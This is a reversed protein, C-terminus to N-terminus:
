DLVISTNHYVSDVTRTYVFEPEATSVRLQWSVSVQVTRAHWLWSVGRWFWEEPCMPPHATLLFTIPKYRGTLKTAWILAFCKIDIDASSNSSPCCWLNSVETWALDAWLPEQLFSQFPIEVSDERRDERRDFRDFSQVSIFQNRLLFESVDAIHHLAM